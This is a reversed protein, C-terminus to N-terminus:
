TGTFLLVTTNALLLATLQVVKSGCVVPNM